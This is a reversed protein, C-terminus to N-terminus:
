QPDDLIRQEDSEHRDHDDRVPSPLADGVLHGVRRHDDPEDQTPELAEGADADSLREAFVTLPMRRYAPTELLAGVIQLALPLEGCLAAIERVVEPARNVREDLEGFTIRESGAM